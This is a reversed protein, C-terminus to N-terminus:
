MHETCTIHLSKGIKCNENNSNEFSAITKKDFSLAFTSQNKM